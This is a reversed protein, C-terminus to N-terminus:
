LLIQVIISHLWFIVVFHLHEFNSTFSAYFSHLFFNQLVKAARCVIDITVDEFNINITQDAMNM